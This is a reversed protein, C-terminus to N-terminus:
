QRLATMYQARLVPNDYVAKSLSLTGFASRIEVDGNELHIVIPKSMSGAIPPISVGRMETKGDEREIREIFCEDRTAPAPNSGAIKQTHVLRTVTAGDRSLEIM